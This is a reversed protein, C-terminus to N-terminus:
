ITNRNLIARENTHRLMLYARFLKGSCTTCEVVAAVKLRLNDV